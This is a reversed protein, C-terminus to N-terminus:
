GAIDVGSDSGGGRRSDSWSGSSCGSGAAGPVGDAGPCRLASTPSSGAGRGPLRRLVPLSCSQAVSFNLAQAQDERPAEARVHSLSAHRDTTKGASTKVQIKVTFRGSPLGRLDVPARLRKGRVVQVRKGNVTVTASVVTIGKFKRIRIQFNRRSVCKRNSPFTILDSAKPTAAKVPPKVVPAPAAPPAPAPAAVVEFAGIDCAAGGPRAQGRQDTAPCTAPDGHDIAPSGSLEAYTLTPGGNDALAGLLPNTNVLDGAAALGCSAGGDINHGASTIAGNCSVGGSAIITNRLTMATSTPGCLGPVSVCNDLDAAGADAVNDRATVNALSITGGGAAQIGGGRSTAHNGSITSNVIDITGGGVSEIGAGSRASNGAILSGKISVKGNADQLVGGGDPFSGGAVNERITSDVINVTGAGDEVM